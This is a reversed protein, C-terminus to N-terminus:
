RDPKVTSPRRPPLQDPKTPPKAPPRTTGIPRRSSAIVADISTVLSDERDYNRTKIGGPLTIEDLEQNIRNALRKVSRYADGARVGASQLRGSISDDHPELDDHTRGRVAVPM